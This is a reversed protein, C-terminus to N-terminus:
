TSAPEVLEQGPTRVTINLTVIGSTDPILITTSKTNTGDSDYHFTITHKGPSVYQPTSWSKGNVGWRKDDITVAVLPYDKSEEGHVDIKVDPM